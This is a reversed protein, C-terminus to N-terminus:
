GGIEKLSGEEEVDWLRKGVWWQGGWSGLGYCMETGIRSRRGMGKMENMWGLFLELVM